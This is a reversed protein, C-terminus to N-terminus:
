PIPALWREWRPWGLEPWAVSVLVHHARGILLARPVSGFFRSDASNHRNDGLFFYHGPPVQIPGFDPGPTVGALYQVPHAWGPLAEQQERAPWQAEDGLSSMTWQPDTSAVLQGNLWLQEGRLALVDGPLGVLRKILRTGDHPSSFTLVEGRQPEGLPLLSLDTLPLKLDYALRNVLVVDGELLSPRMSGSPIPNWDAIATRFVGFCLLFVLTGRNAKLWGVM